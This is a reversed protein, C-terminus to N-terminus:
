LLSNIFQEQFFILWEEDENLDSDFELTLIFVKIRLFFYYTTDKQINKDIQDWNKENLNNFVKLLEEESMNKKVILNIENFFDQIYDITTYRSLFDLAKLNINNKRLKLVEFIKFYDEIIM